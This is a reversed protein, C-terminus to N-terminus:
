KKVKNIVSYGVFCAYAIAWNILAYKNPKIALLAAIAGIAGLTIAVPKWGVIKAILAIATLWVFWFACSPRLILWNVWFRMFPIDCKKHWLRMFPHLFKLHFTKNLPVADRLFAEHELNQYTLHHADQSPLLPFVCDRNQLVNQFFRSKRHWEASNMYEDYENSM